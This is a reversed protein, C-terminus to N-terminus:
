VLHCHHIVLALSSWMQRNEINNLSVEVRSLRNIQQLHAIINRTTSSLRTNKPFCILRHFVELEVECTNKDHERRLLIPNEILTVVLRYVPGIM